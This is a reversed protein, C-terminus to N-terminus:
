SYVAPTMVSALSPDDEPVDEVVEAKEGVDMRECDEVTSAEEDARVLEACVEDEVTMVWEAEDTIGWDVGVDEEEAPIEHAGREGTGDRSSM